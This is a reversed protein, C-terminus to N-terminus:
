SQMNCTERPKVVDIMKYNYKEPRWPDHITNTKVQTGNM